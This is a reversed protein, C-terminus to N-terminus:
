EFTALYAIVDAIEEEKRLGPFAMKTGKAYKRPSDLFAALEEETWVADEAAMEQFVDSYKFGEVSAVPGGVVGNLVPGVRNKAGEGVMHCAKCKRFVKEGAEPDGEAWAPAAVALALIATVLKKKM